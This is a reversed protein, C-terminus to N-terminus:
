GIVERAICRFEFECNHSMIPYGWLKIHIPKEKTGYRKNWKKQIRKKKHRKVPIIMIADYEMCFLKRKEDESLNAANMVEQLM